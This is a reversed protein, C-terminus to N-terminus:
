EIRMTGTIPAQKIAIPSADNNVGGEQTIIQISAPNAPRCMTKPYKM